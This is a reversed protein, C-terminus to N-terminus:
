RQRSCLRLSYLILIVTGTSTGSTYTLIATAFLVHVRNNYSEASSWTLQLLRVLACSMRMAHRKYLLRPGLLKADGAASAAM